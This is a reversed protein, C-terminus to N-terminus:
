PKAEKMGLWEKLKHLFRILRFSFEVCFSFGLYKGSDGINETIAIGVPDIDLRQVGYGFDCPVVWVNESKL